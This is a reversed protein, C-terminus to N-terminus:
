DAPQMYILDYTNGTIDIDNISYSVSNTGKWATVTMSYPPRIRQDNWSKTSPALPLIYEWNINNNDIRNDLNITTDQPFRVYYGTKDKYDYVNGNIDTFQMAELQPSFRIVVKDAFGSTRINIKVSELSLFRHPEITLQKGFMDKQGRWHNWYGDISVSEIKLAEKVTIDQYYCNALIYGNAADAGGDSWLGNSAKVRLYVRYSGPGVDAYDTKINTDYGLMSGTGTNSNAFQGNSIVSGNSRNVVIWQWRSLTSFYAYSTDRVKLKEATTITNNANAITFQAVPPQTNDIANSTWNSWAGEMDQVRHEIYYVKNAAGNTINMQESRWTDESSERWRWEHAVIGKDARSVHDNDFSGGDSATIRYFSGNPTISVNTLAIPREHAFVTITSENSWKRYSAFNNNPTVQDEARYRITYKGKKTFTTIPTTIWQDANSIKGTNNEFVSPDHEYMIQERNIADNEYDLYAKKYELVDENIVFYSTKTYLNEFTAYRDTMIKIVQSLTNYTYGDKQNGAALQSLTANQINYPIYPTKLVFDAAENPSVTYIYFNNAKLYNVFDQTLNGFPYYSGYSKLTESSYKDSIYIFYRESDGALSKGQIAAKDIGKVPVAEIDCAPLINLMNYSYKKFTYEIPNSGTQQMDMTYLNGSMDLGFFGFETAVFQMNLLNPSAELKQLSTFNSYKYTNGPYGEYYWYKPTTDYLDQPAFNGLVYWNGDTKKIYARQAWNNSYLQEVSTVTSALTPVYNISSTNATGKIGELIMSNHGSYYLKNDTTIFYSAYYGVSYYQKFNSLIKKPTTLAANEGTGYQGYWNSDSTIVYLDNNDLVIGLGSYNTGLGLIDKISSGVSYLTEFNQYMKWNDQVAPNLYTM